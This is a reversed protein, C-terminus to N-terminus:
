GFSLQRLTPGGRIFRAGRPRRRLRCCWELGCVACARPSGPSSQGLPCGHTYKRYIRSRGPGQFLLGKAWYVDPALILILFSGPKAPGQFVLTYARNRGRPTTSYHHPSCRDNWISPDFARSELSVGALCWYLFFGSHSFISRLIHSAAASPRDNTSAFTLAATLPLPNRNRCGRCGFKDQENEQSSDGRWAFACPNM